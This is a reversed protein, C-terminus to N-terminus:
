DVALSVIRLKATCVGGGVGSRSPGSSDGGAIFEGIASQAVAVEGAVVPGVDWLFSEATAAFTAPVYIRLDGGTTGRAVVGDFVADGRGRPQSLAM